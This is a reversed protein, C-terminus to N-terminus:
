TLFFTKCKETKIKIEESKLQFLSNMTGTYNINDVYSLVLVALACKENNKNNKKKIKFMIQLSQGKWIM